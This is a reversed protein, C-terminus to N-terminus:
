QPAVAAPGSAVTGAHAQRALESMVLRYERYARDGREAVWQFHKLADDHRGSADFTFGVYTHAETQEGRSKARGLLHDSDIEGSMFDVVASTWGSRGVERRVRTLLALSEEQQNARWHAIVGLLAAYQGAVETLSTRELYLGIREAAVENRGLRFAQTAAARFHNPNGDLQLARMLAARSQADRGVGLTADSLGAWSAAHRPNTTVAHQFADVAESFRWEDRLATGLYYQAIFSEPRSRAVDDFLKLADGRRDQQLRLAGLALRADVHLPDIELAANLEKEVEQLAGAALLTKGQVFRSDAELMRESVVHGTAGVARPLRVAPFTFSRTYQRFPVEISDVSVGFAEEFAAEPKAGNATARLFVDFAANTPSTHRLLLYHVLAWSEAYFMVAQGSSGWGGVPPAIVDRLPIFTLERLLQVRESPARGLLSGSEYEPQFTSLFEALGENMWPPVRAANQYILYHTYEHFLTRNNEPHGSYPLVMLNDDAEFAAWGGVLVNRRGGSDRPQFREFAVDDKLVVVRMPVSSTTRAGPMLAAFASRFQLIGDLTRKLDTDAANGLVTVDGATLQRWSASRPPQKASQMPVTANTAVASVLLVIACLGAAYRRTHVLRPRLRM